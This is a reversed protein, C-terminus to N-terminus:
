LQCFLRTASTREISESIAESLIRRTSIPKRATDIASQYTTPLLESRKNGHDPMRLPRYLRYRTHTPFAPVLGTVIRGSSRPRVPRLTRAFWYQAKEM